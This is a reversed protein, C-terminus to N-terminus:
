GWVCPFAPTCERVPVEPVEEYTFWLPSDVSGDVRLDWEKPDFRPVIGLDLRPWKKVERRGPPVREGVAGRHSPPRPGPGPGLRPWKKVERQGPPVQEAVAM